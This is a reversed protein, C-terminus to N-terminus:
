AYNPQKITNELGLEKGRQLNIQSAIDFSGVLRAVCSQKENYDQM